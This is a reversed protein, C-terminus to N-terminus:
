QSSYLIAHRANRPLRTSLRLARRRVARKAAKILATAKRNHKSLSKRAQARQHPQHDAAVFRRTQLSSHKAPLAGDERAIERWRRPLFKKDTHLRHNIKRCPASCCIEDRHNPRFVKICAPCILRSDHKPPAPYLRGGLALNYGHPFRTNHQAILRRETLDLDDKSDCAAIIEWQFNDRGHRKLADAFARCASSPTEHQARREALSKKTQGIYCKGNPSTARYIIGYLRTQM